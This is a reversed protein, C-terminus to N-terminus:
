PEARNLFPGAYDPLSTLYRVSLDVTNGIQSFLPIKGAISSGKRVFAKMYSAKRDPSLMIPALLTGKSVFALDSYIQELFARTDDWWRDDPEYYTKAAHLLDHLRAGASERLRATVPIYYLYIFNGIHDELRAEYITDGLRIRKDLERSSTVIKWGQKKHRAIDNRAELYQQLRSETGCRLELAAYFLAERTHQDLCARARNLYGM